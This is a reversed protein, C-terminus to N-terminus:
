NESKSGVVMGGKKVIKKKKTKEKLRKFNNKYIQNRREKAEKKRKIQEETLRQPAAESPTSVGKRKMREAIESEQLYQSVGSM